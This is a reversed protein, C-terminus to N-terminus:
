RRYEIAQQRMGVTPDLKGHQQGDRVGASRGGVEPVQQVLVGLAAPAEGQGEPVRVHEVRLRGLRAAGGRQQQVDVRDAEGRAPTVVGQGLVDAVPGVRGPREEADRDVPHVAGGQAPAALGAGLQGGLGKREGRGHGPHPQPTLAVAAVQDPAQELREAPRDRDRAARQVRAEGPPGARCPVIV